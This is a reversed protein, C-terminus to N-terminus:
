RPKMVNNYIDRMTEGIRDWRHVDLVHQRAAEGMRKLGARDANGQRLAEAIGAIVSEASGGPIKFGADAPVMEHTAGIDLCLVPLGIHMAELIVTPPGDRLTPQAFLHSQAMLAYLDDRTPLHGLFKVQHAVGLSQALDELYSQYRGEGTVSLRADTGTQRVFDAFGRILLDFGKWHVLRGGTIVRFPPDDIAANALGAGAPLEDDSTGFHIIAEARGRHRAAIGDLGEHTYVLIRSARRMTRRVLPDFRQLSDQLLVRRREYKEAYAPLDLVPEAPMKHTSGGVPGWIFPVDVFALGSPLWDACYTVHQCLDFRRRRTLRRAFFILRLQWLYYYALHHEPTGFYLPELFQPLGLFHFRLGDVPAAALAEEIQQRFPTVTVVDVETGNRAAQVAFNWGVGRESGRDPACAFASILLRM